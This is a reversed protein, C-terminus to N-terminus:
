GLMHKSNATLTVIGIRRLRAAFFSLRLLKTEARSFFFMWCKVRMM